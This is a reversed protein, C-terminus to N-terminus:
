KLDKFIPKIKGDLATGVRWETQAWNEVGNLVM